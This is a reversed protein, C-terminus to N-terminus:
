EWSDLAAAQQGAVRGFYLNRGVSAGCCPYAGGMVAGAALSSLYLRPIPEGFVDIARAQRDIKLGSLMFAYDGDLSHDFPMNQKGPYMWQAGVALCANIGSGDNEGPLDQGFAGWLNETYDDMTYVARMEHNSAFNGTAVVVGKRAKIYVEADGQKAVVGVVENTSPQTVLRVLATELMIQVGREDLANSFTKWLGTGGATPFLGMDDNGIFEDDPNQTFWHCRPVAEFGLEEMMERDVGVNLGAFTNYELGDAGDSFEWEEVPQGGLDDIIWDVLAGSNDCFDRVLEEDCFGQGMAMWYEFMADASDEVGLAAQVKTGAGAVGGGCRRLQGGAWDMSEIVVVEAGADHAEIAAPAGGAGSGCVVVDYEYDWAAV